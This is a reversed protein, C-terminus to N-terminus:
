NKNEVKREVLKKQFQTNVFEHVYYPMLLSQELHNEIIKIIKPRRIEKLVIDETEGNHVIWVANSTIKNM